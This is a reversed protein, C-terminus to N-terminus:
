RPPHAPEQKTTRPQWRFGLNFENIGRVFQNDWYLSLGYDQWINQLLGLRMRPSNIDYLEGSLTLPQDLLKMNFDAGAGIKGRVLGFRVLSKDDIKSGAQLNILNGDGIEDLGVRFYSVPGGLGLDGFVNFNGVAGPVAKFDQTLRMAGLAEARFNLDLQNTQTQPDTLDFIANTLRTANKAVTRINKKIEPDHSIELVDGTITKVDDTIGEFKRTLGQLDKTFDQWQRTLGNINSISQRTNNLMQPDNALENVQGSLAEVNGAIRRTSAIIAQVEPITATTAGNIQKLLIETQTTLKGFGSTVGKIDKFLGSLQSATKNITGATQLINERLEPNDVLQRASKMMAQAETFITDLSAPPNGTIEAGAELYNKSVKEPPFVEINKDGVLGTTIITFKSNVPLKIDRKINMSIKVRRQAPEAEIAFTEGIEVGMLTVKSGVKIGGVHPFYGTIQYYAYPNIQWIYIVGVLLTVVTLITILGVKFASNM